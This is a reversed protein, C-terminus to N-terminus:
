EAPQLAIRKPPALWFSSPRDFLFRAPTERLAWFMCLSGLVGVATVVASITGVDAILGSKLLVARTAAMPLFFGLYIVISNRGCYRLPKFLDAKAMLSAVTVVACAGALGLGLSVFPLIEYGLHVVTGNLLGWVFLGALGVLPQAQARATLAFIPKAFIYGTYCYVFRAAFEDPVMWGTNIHAIELAAGFLWIVPFPVRRTLKIFVFFVPLLYIFWLTGFPDILSLVYLRAVDIAGQEHVMGPAKVAFQITMWLLYFYAFHVVKRDAYQRWPRDIVNALFLGSILFFDPMRFPLAFAVVPHLWGEHGAAAEVGLTSHMMVVFIICFGKAYDVWDIRGDHIQINNM